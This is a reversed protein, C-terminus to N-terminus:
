ERMVPIWAAASGPQRNERAHRNLTGTTQSQPLRFKKDGLAGIPSEIRVDESFDPVLGAMVCKSLRCRNDNRENPIKRVV